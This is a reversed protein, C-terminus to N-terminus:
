ETANPKATESPPLFMYKIQARIAIGSAPRIHKTQKIPRVFPVCAGYCDCTFCHGCSSAMRVILDCM